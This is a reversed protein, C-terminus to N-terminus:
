NQQHEMWEFFKDRPIRKVKGVKMCPFDKRNTLDYAPGSGIGLIEQVAKVSLTIPYDKKEV